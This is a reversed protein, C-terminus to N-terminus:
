ASWPTVGDGIKVKVKGNDLFEVGTEGKLLVKSSNLEWNTTTDNRHVLKTRLESM